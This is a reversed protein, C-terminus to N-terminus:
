GGSCISTVLYQMTNTSNATPAIEPNPRQATL